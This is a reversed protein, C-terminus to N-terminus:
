VFKEWVINAVELGRDTLFINTDNEDILKDQKLENIEDLFIDYVDKKFKSKFKQKDLGKIKRLSLIVYEKMLSLLDLEEYEDVLGDKISDSLELNNKTLNDIYKDLDKINSYRAGGFFSSANVGFGLYEEQNWYRTNHIAEFGDLAYNSIEYRHYGNNELTDKIYKYMEYEEDEDPLTIYGEQLLFALKTNEHVELNYISVHKVNKNKLSCVYDVTEKLRDLTLNPLPYMLDVTINDIGSENVINLANEFDEFKHARGITKLIDNFISQLGISVRNIGAEKYMDIKDKTISNPNCEITVEQLYSKDIVMYITNLIQCIYKNDIFSPTGGGIYITTVKYQGLVEANQLIENCLAYTYKEIMDERNSYSVFDCYFCKSLCFPIHIYIGIEKM